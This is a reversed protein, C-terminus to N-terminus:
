VRTKTRLQKHPQNAMWVLKCKISRKAAKNFAPNFVRDIAEYPSPYDDPNTDKFIRQLIEHYLPHYAVWKPIPRECRQLQLKPSIVSYMHPTTAALCFTKSKIRLFAIQWPYASLYIRDLKSAVTFRSDYTNPANLGIKPPEHQFVETCAQYFPKGLRENLTTEATKPELM